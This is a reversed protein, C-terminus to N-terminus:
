KNSASPPKKNKDVTKVPNKPAALKDLKSSQKQKEKPMYRKM